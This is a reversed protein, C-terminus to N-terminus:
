KEETKETVTVTLESKKTVLQDKCQTCVDKKFLLDRFGVQHIEEVSKYKGCIYCRFAELTDNNELSKRRDVKLGTSCYRAL